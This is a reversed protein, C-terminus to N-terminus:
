VCIYWIKCQIEPVYLLEDPAGQCNVPRLNCFGIWPVHSPVTHQCISTIPARLRPQRDRRRSFMGRRGAGAQPVVGPLANPPRRNSRRFSDVSDRFCHADRPQPHALPPFGPLPKWSQPHQSLCSRSSLEPIGDGGSWTWAGPPACACDCLWGARPPRAPASELGARGMLRQPPCQLSRRFCGSKTEPLVVAAAPRGPLTGM